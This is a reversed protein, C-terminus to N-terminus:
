ARFLLKALTDALVIECDPMATKARWAVFGDPRVLCAGSETVGYAACFRGDPDRLDKGVCCADLELGKFRGAARRAAGCWAAGAPGALLVYRCNFLDLASCRAGDREIWLHPARSGPRGMTQRPDDHVKPESDDAVIAPSDYIYGLEINFDHALPQYDTAGLYTATRTVYRTYAQEVTFKAVPRREAEYSDVLGAGAVGNLAM